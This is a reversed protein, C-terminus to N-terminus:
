CAKMSLPPVSECWWATPTSCEAQSSCSMEVPPTASMCPRKSEASGPCFKLGPFIMGPLYTTPQTARSSRARTDFGHRSGAYLGRSPRSVSASSASSRRLVQQNLLARPVLVRISAMAAAQTSATHHDRYARLARVRGVLQENTITEIRECLECEVSSNSTPLPRSVSASSASSRRLVKNTSYRALFSCAYRFWLWRAVNGRTRM